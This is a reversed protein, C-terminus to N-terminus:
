LVKRLELMVTRGVPDRYAPQYAQPVVGLSNTVTQRENLINEFVLSLRTDKAMPENPMLQGLDAFLRLDMKFLSGFTLLEPAATTGTQLYSPGRYSASLRFGSAGRTLSVIASTTNRLKGGAIGIAGGALLDVEPLGNRILLSSDLLLTHSLNFQLNTAPIRRRPTTATAAISQAPKIPVVFNVGLRLQSTTENAFNITSTDVVSLRGNADRIFRDPFALVVATSPEPLAGLQNRLEVEQYEASLQMNYKPLPTATVSLQRTLESENVLSSVGGTILRVDVTENRLPDFYPVNETTVQPAALLEPYIATGDKFQTATVRLWDVPTWNFAVSYRHITGYPGVDVRGVDFALESRGLSPLFTESTLPITVGAKVTLERRDFGHPGFFDLGEFTTWLASAGARALLPGAPLHFVPGEADGSVQRDINHSTSTRSTVPILGPLTGAFPNTAPGVTFFGGSFFGNLESVFTSERENYNGLLTAHWSGFNGHLTATFSKTTTDSTSVLPRAPDNLTLFVPTSFPTYPNTAPVLFRGSPLGRLSENKNWNLRGNFSLTLEPSLVKNGAVAAEYPRSASRISRYFAADSPNTQNAGALLDAVGPLANGNLAVITVPQGFRASLVPDVQTGSFPLVNGLRAYPFTQPRPVIDRDAELLIDSDSHRLTLNLRDQEHVYTLLAEARSMGWGGETAQERSLTVTASKVSPKLVGTYARQGSTGGIRQAAGRPLQEIRQIAEVPLDAIDGLDRVPQGNVLVSPDNDGNEDRVQDLLEGVTSVDYSGVRDEDYTQEPDVDQLAAIIIRQGIVVIRREDQEGQPAAQPEASQEAPQGSEQASAASM